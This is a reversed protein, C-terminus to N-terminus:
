AFFLSMFYKVLAVLLVTLLLGPWIVLFIFDALLFTKGKYDDGPACLKLEEGTRRGKAQAKLATMAHEPLDAVPVWRKKHPM